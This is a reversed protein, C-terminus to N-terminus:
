DSVLSNDREGEVALEAELPATLETFEDVQTGAPQATQQATQQAPPTAPIDVVAVAPERKFVLTRYAWFRFLTALAIGVNTAVNFELRNHHEDFGLGYKSLGVVAAQIVMGVLNFVFFLTYERHLTTRPRDKYTWHRNALYSLTTTIVTAIVTAKVAGIFLTANFIALYLVLNFVGVVGFM